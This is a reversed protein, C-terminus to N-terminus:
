RRTGAPARAPATRRLAGATRCVARLGRHYHGDVAPTEWPLGNFTQSQRVRGELRVARAILRTRGAGCDFDMEYEASDFLATDPGVPRVYLIRFRGRLVGGARRALLATDVATRSVYTASVIMYTPPLPPLRYESRPDARYRRDVEDFWGPGRWALRVHPSSGQDTREILLETLGGEWRAQERAVSDPKGLATELSDALARYRPGLQPGRAPDILLFGVVRGDQVTLDLVAGDARGFLPDGADDNRTFTYGRSELLPRVESVPLRWPIGSFVLERQARASTATACLCALLTLLRIPSPM